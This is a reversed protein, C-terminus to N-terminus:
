KRNHFDDVSKIYENFSMKKKKDKPPAINGMRRQYAYAFQQAKAVESNGENGYGYNQQIKEWEGKRDYDFADMEETERLLSKALKDFDM